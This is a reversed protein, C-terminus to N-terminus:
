SCNEVCLAGGKHTNAFFELAERYRAARSYTMEMEELQRYLKDRTDILEQIRAEAQEAIRRWGITEGCAVNSATEAGDFDKMWQNAVKEWADREAEAQEARERLQIVQTMADCRHEDREAEVRILDKEAAHHDDSVQDLADAARCLEAAMLEFNSPSCILKQRNFAMARLEKSLPHSM